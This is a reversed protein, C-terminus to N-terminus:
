GLGCKLADQIRTEDVEIRSDGFGCVLLVEREGCGCYFESCRKVCM